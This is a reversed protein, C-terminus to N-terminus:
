HKFSHTTKEYHLFFKPTHEKTYYSYRKNLAQLYRLLRLLKLNVHYETCTISTKCITKLRLITRFMKCNLNM